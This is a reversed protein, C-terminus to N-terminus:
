SAYLYLYRKLMLEHSHNQCVYERNKVSLTSKEEASLLLISNFVNYVADISFDKAVFGLKSGEVFSFLSPIPTIIPILGVSM